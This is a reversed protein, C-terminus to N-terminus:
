EFLEQGNLKVSLVTAPADDYLAVTIEILTDPTLRIAIIQTREEM